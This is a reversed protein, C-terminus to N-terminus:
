LIRKRTLCFFFLAIKRLVLNLKATWAPPYEWRSPSWLFLSSDVDSKVRFPHLVHALFPRIWFDWCGGGELVPTYVGPSFLLVQNLAAM